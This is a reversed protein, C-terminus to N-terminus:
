WRSNSVLAHAPRQGPHHGLGGAQASQGAPAPPVHWGKFAASSVLAEGEDGMRKVAARAPAPLQYAGNGDGAGLQLGPETEM